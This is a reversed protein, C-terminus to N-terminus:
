VLLDAFHKVFYWLWFFNLFVGFGHHDQCLPKPDNCLGDDVYGCPCKLLNLSYIELTNLHDLSDVSKTISGV